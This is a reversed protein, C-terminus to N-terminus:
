DEKGSDKTELLKQLWIYNEEDLTYDRFGRRLYWEHMWSDKDVKLYLETIKCQKAIAEIHNLINTARGERRFGEEVSLDSIYFHHINKDELNDDYFYVRVFTHYDMINLYNEEATFFIHYNFRGWVTKLNNTFYKKIEERTM